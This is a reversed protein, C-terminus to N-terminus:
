AETYLVQIRWHQGSHRSCHESVHLWLCHNHSSWVGLEIDQEWVEMTESVWIMAKLPSAGLESLPLDGDCVDIFAYNVFDWIRKKSSCQKHRHHM